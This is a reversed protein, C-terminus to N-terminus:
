SNERDYFLAGPIHDLYKRCFSKERVEFRFCFEESLEDLLDEVPRVLRFSSGSTRQELVIFKVSESSGKEIKRQVCYARAVQKLKKLRETLHKLMAANPTFASLEDRCDLEAELKDSIRNMQGSRMEFFAKLRATDGTELYYMVLTDNAMFILSPCASVAQEIIEIGKEPDDRGALVIGYRCAVEPIEPHAAYCRMIFDDCERERGTVQLANVMDSIYEMCVEPDDSSYRLLYDAAEQRIIRSDEAVPDCLEHLFRNVDEYFAPDKGILKDLADPKAASYSRWDRVGAIELRKRFPPHEENVPTMSRMATGIIKGAEEPPLPTHFYDRLFSAIDFSDWEESFYKERIDFKRYRAAALTNEVLAAAAYEPGLAGVIFRDAEIEHRRYIPLAAVHVAPLYFRLWLGTIFNFVGLYLNEWFTVLSYFVCSVSLHNNALHGIEHALFGTVAKGSMSSLLPYGLILVNRRLFPLFTFVSSVSANFEPSLYVAHIKPGHVKRSIWNIRRYIAAYKRRELKLLGKWPRNLMVTVYVFLSIGLCVLLFGWERFFFLFFLIGAVLLFMLCSQAFLWALKAYYRKPSSEFLAISKEYKEWEEVTVGELM